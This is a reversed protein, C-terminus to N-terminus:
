AFNAQQKCGGTILTTKKKPSGFLATQTPLALQLNLPRTVLRPATDTGKTVDCLAPLSSGASIEEKRSDFFM